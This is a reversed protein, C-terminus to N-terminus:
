ALLQPSAQAAALYQKLHRRATGRRHYAKTYTPDLELALSCDAEAAAYAALKLHAM